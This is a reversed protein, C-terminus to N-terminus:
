QLIILKYTAPVIMNIRQPQNLLVNKFNAKIRIPNNGNHASIDFVTPLVFQGHQNYGDYIMSFLVQQSQSNYLIINEIYENDNYNMELLSRNESQIVMKDSGGAIANFNFKNRYSEECRDATFLIMLTEPNIPFGTIKRLYNNKGTYCVRNWYDVVVFSDRYIIGRVQFLLWTGSFYVVSDSQIYISGNISLSQAGDYIEIKSSPAYLNEIPYCSSYIFGKIPITSITTKHSRCASVGLIFVLSIIFRFNFILIIELRKKIFRNTKM